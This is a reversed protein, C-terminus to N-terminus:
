RGRGEYANRGTLWELYANRTKSSVSELVKRHDVQHRLLLRADAVTRSKCYWHCSHQFLFLEASLHFARDKLSLGEENDVVYKLGDAHIQLLDVFNRTLAPLFREVYPVCMKSACMSTAQRSERQMSDALRRVQSAVAQETQHYTEFVQLQRSESDEHIARSYGQTLTEMHRELSLESLYGALLAIHSRQYRGRLVIWIGAVMFVSLAFDM